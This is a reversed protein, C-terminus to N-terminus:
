RNACLARCRAWYRHREWRQDSCSRAAHERWGWLLAVGLAMAAFGAVAIPWISGTRTLVPVSSVAHTGIEDDARLRAMLRERAAAKRRPDDVMSQFSDLNMETATHFAGVDACLERYGALTERCAECRSLHQSLCDMEEQPIQGTPALACLQEFYEHESGTM